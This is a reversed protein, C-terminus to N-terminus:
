PGALQVPPSGFASSHCSVTSLVRTILTDTVSRQPPRALRTACTACDLTAAALIPPQQAIRDKCLLGGARGNATTQFDGKPRRYGPQWLPSRLGLKANPKISAVDIVFVGGTGLCFPKRYVAGNPACLKVHCHVTAPTPAPVRTTDLDCANNARANARDFPLEKGVIGTPEYILFSLGYSAM